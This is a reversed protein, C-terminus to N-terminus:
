VVRLTIKRIPLSKNIDSLSNRIDHGRQKEENPRRSSGSARFKGIIWLGVIRLPCVAVLENLYKKHEFVM